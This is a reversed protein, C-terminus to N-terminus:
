MLTLKIGLKDCHSKIGEIRKRSPHKFSIPQNSAPKRTGPPVDAHWFVETGKPLRKLASEFKGTGVIVSTKSTIEEYSRQRNTGPSLSYHWHGNEKWTFLQYGKMPAQGKQAYSASAVMVIVALVAIKRVLM